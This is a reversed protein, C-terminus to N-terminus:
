RFVVNGDGLLKALELALNQSFEVWYNENLTLKENTKKRYLLVRTKGSHKKLVTLVAQQNEKNDLAAPLQLYLIEKTIAEEMPNALQLTDVLVQLEENYKSLEVVGSILVVQEVALQNVVQRFVRPFITLSISGSADDGDVFAMTEGKKTRIERINKVYVLLKVHQKAVIENVASIQNGWRMKKFADVPHGSLALGLLNEEIELREKLSYDAIEAEKLRMIELLSLSGGSLIVNQIKGDLESVLQRRNSTLSDFAGILILPKLLDEKLWRKDIRFLFQDFSTFSGNNKRLEIIETVFDRRMGKISGLGFRLRTKDLASIGYYSENIDPGLVQVQAKKADSVYEKIKSNNHMVSRMIARYFPVPYHVKLYCMQFAVFSYAFAHSRNFGFDGFHEIYDYVQNAVAEQHGRAVSGKVFLARQQDMVDKKKKSMARRLIDAQGLSFGAMTSAVQMVQEQYVIIGYTSQLIDKLSDDLYHVPEKGSKRAIFPDINGMSGPRYLANVNAVDRISSPKVQRLVNRIGPSEFQFIGSTAGEQFLKLTAPDDLPIDKTQVTEHYLRKIDKLTNDIISLNRLGLFDMKLLGVAEVDYMTFQTLYIDESGKQLPVIELLDDDSIVVGAAHTSVHRPLGELRKATEYLLNNKDTLRTLDAFNKSEQFAEALTIKLKNPVAKSWRNAESQSYGFVRSVDRLVMKAAMTGFTAIQAMHQDGYKQKVYHLVEERRNDPIDLDIDPMSQREPNLFREFLLEYELPDVETIALVYAVLSGAASGRGAGTVIKERHCFDIVDWVILFYDDFGMTHIVSLEYELRKKYNETLTAIRLPLNEWCLQALYHAANEGTPVQYHPLLHEGFQFHVECNAALREAQQVAANLNAAVFADRIVAASQLYHPYATQKREELPDPMQTGAAIHRMVRVAFGAAEELYEIPQVAIEAIRAQQCYAVWAANEETLTRAIFLQDATFLQQAQALVQSAQTESQSWTKVKEFDNPLVVFLESTNEKTLEVPAEHMSVFSSLKILQQYGQNNKSFVYVEGPLQAITCSLQLGVICDMAQKQCERYFELTGTLVNHDTIALTQYGAAKAQTVYEKITITSNLLSYSTTTILQPFSM